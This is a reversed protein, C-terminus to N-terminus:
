VCMLVVNFCTCPIIELFLQMSHNGPIFGVDFDDSVSWVIMCLQLQHPLLPLLGSTSQM